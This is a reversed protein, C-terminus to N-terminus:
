LVEESAVVDVAVNTVVADTSVVIVSVVTVVLLMNPTDAFGVECAILAGRRPSAKPIIPANNSRANISNLLNRM